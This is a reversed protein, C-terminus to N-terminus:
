VSRSCWLRDNAGEQFSRTSLPAPTFRKGTDHHSAPGCVATYVLAPTPNRSTCEAGSEPIKMVMMMMVTVCIPSIWLEASSLMDTEFHSFTSMVGETPRRHQWWSMLDAGFLKVLAVKVHSRKIFMQIQNLELHYYKMETLPECQAPLLYNKKKGVTSHPFTSPSANLSHWSAGWQQSIFVMFYWFCLNCLPIYPFSDVTSQTAVCEGHLM